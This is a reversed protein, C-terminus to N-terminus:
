SFIDLADFIEGAIDAVEGATDAMGALGEPIDAGSAAGGAAVAGTTGAAKPGPRDLFRLVDTRTAQYDADIGHQACFRAFENDTCFLAVAWGTWQAPFHAAQMAAGVEVASYIKRRGHTSALRLAAENIISAKFRDSIAPLQM